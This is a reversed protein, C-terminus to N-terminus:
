SEIDAIRDPKGYFTLKGTVINAVYHGENFFQMVSNGSQAM